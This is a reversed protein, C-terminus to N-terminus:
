SAIRLYAAGYHLSVFFTANLSKLLNRKRKKELFRSELCLGDLRTIPAVM